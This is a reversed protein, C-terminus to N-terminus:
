PVDAAGVPHDVTASCVVAYLTERRALFGVLLGPKVPALTEPACGENVPLPRNWLISSQPEDLLGIVLHLGIGICIGSTIMQQPSIPTIGTELQIMSGFLGAM